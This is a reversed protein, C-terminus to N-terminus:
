CVAKQQTFDECIHYSSWLQIQCQSSRKVCQDFFKELQFLWYSHCLFRSEDDIAPNTSSAIQRTRAWSSFSFLDHNQQASYVVSNVTVPKVKSRITVTDSFKTESYTLTFKATCKVLYYPLSTAMVYLINKAADIVCSPFRVDLM